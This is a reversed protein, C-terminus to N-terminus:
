KFFHLLLERTKPGVVGVAALNNATQFSMVAEKTAVGFYGTVTGKFHGLKALVSQLKTVEPGSWGVALTHAVPVVAKASTSKQSYLAAVEDASIARNYLRVDDILGTATGNSVSGRAQGILAGATPDFYDIGFLTRPTQAELQGDLYLSMTTADWTLVAHHWINTTLPTKNSTLYQANYNQNSIQGRLYLSTTTNTHYVVLRIGLNSAPNGSDLKVFIPWVIDQGISTLNMNFWGSVSGGADALNLLPNGPIALYSQSDFQGAVGIAGSVVPISGSIAANLNNGSVDKFTNSAVDRDDFTWRAILGNTVLSPTAVPNSTPTSIPTSIVPATSLTPPVMGVYEYAGPEVPGASKRTTLSLPHVYEQTPTLSMGNASGPDVGLNVFPSDATLHYDFNAKSVFHADTTVSNGGDLTSGNVATGPGVFLNNMIKKTPTGSLWVFAGGTADNVVTNNVMYFQQSPNSAGEEAYAIINSNQSNPGQEISNGILYTEGGNPIDVEYSDTGQEGTIRNYTIINKLARSKILHGVSANHTYSGTLTFSGVAGIYMNHSCGHGDVCAGNKAFESNAVVISSAANTSSMIGNENDHFYSNTISLNTGEIRIGAGNLDPVHAGSMEVNDIKIDNGSTVWIAKGNSSPTAHWTNTENASQVMHAKGGVGKITLNNKSIYCFDDTYTGADIAVTDGDSAAAFAACPKAYTKGSGVTLVNGTNPPVNIPTVSVPAPSPATPTTTIPIPIFTSTITPTVPTLTMSTPSTPLIPSMGSGKLSAEVNSVINASAGFSALLDLISQIQAATLNSSNPRSTVGQLVKIYNEVSWGDCGTDYNINWWTYGNALIPGDIISGHAGQVQTCVIGGTTKPTTRVRLNDLTQIRDTVTFTTVPTSVPVVTTTPTPTIAVPTPTQTVPVPAPTPTTAVPTPTQTVPVPAPTPTTTVYTPTAASTAGPVIHYTPDSQFTATDVHPPNASKLWNYAITAQVGLASNAGFVTVYEALTGLGLAGYYGDSKSWGTSNDQSIEATGAQLDAWTKVPTFTSASIHSIPLNYTVGNRPNFGKAENLFRGIAWNSAWSLYTAAKANGFEAAQAVSVLLFDQMWPATISYTPTYRGASGIEQPVFGYVEGSQMQWAATKSNLWTLNDDQVKTFYAKLSDGDPNAWMAENVQRLSWATGRVQDGTLLDSLGGLVRVGPWQNVISYSAQANLQDLHFRRGTMLYPVYSLDPQHSTDTNWTTDGTMAALGDTYGGPGGRPDVWVNPVQDTNLWTNQYQYHWPISAAADAGALAAKAATASQTILWATNQATVYGIDARGGTTPMYTTVGNTAFPVTTDQPLGSVLNDLLASSVGISLDYNHIAKTKELYVIDHQVNVQSLGNTSFLKHWQQYQNHALSPSQYVVGGNQTITATYTLTNKEYACAPGTQPCIKAIDNNFQVETTYSGDSYKSIDFILHLPGTVPVDVRGETVVPGQRWYSVKGQSLATALLAAVDFHYTGSAGATLNIDVSFAYDPMSSLSLASGGSGAAFLTPNTSNASLAPAMATVVGFKVSGDSFKTKVDIQAPVATGNITASIGSAGSLGGQVFAQGFQVAHAPLASSTPNQFNAGVIQSGSPQAIVPTQVVQASVFTPALAIGLFLVLKKYMTM